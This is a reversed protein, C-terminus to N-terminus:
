SAYLYSPTPSNSAHDTWDEWYIPVFLCILLASVTKGLHAPRMASRTAFALPLGCALRM